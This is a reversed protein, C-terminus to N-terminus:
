NSDHDSNQDSILPYELIEFVIKDKAFCYQEEITTILRILEPNQLDELFINITMKTEHKM